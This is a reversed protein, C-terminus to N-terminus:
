KMILLQGNASGDFFDKVTFADDYNTYVPSAREVNRVYLKSTAVTSMDEYGTIVWFHGDRGYMVRSPSIVPWNNNIGDKVKQYFGPMNGAFIYKVSNPRNYGNNISNQNTQQVGYWLDLLSACYRGPSGSFCQTDNRYNATNNWFLPSHLQGLTKNQGAVYIGVIKLAAHGCWYNRNPNEAPNFEWYHPVTGAVFKPAAIAYTSAMSLAVALTVKGLNFKMSM